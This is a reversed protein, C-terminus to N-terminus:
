RHQQDKKSLEAVRAIAMPDIDMLVVILKDIYDRARELENELHAMKGESERQKEQRDQMTLQLQAHQEELRQHAVEADEKDRLLQHHESELHEMQGLKEKYGHVQAEIEKRRLAESRKILEREEKWARAEERLRENEVELRRLAKLSARSSTTAARHEPTNRLAWSDLVPSAPANAVSASGATTSREFVPSGSVQVSSRGSVPSGFNLSRSRPRGEETPVQMGSQEDSGHGNITREARGQTGQPLEEASAFIDDESKSPSKLAFKSFDTPGSGSITSSHLYAAPVAHNSDPLFEFLVLVLRTGRTQNKPTSTRKISGSHAVFRRPRTINETSSSSVDRLSNTSTMLASFKHRLSSSRPRTGPSSLPDADMDPAKTRLFTTRAEAQDDFLLFWGAIKTTGAIDELGFSTGGLFENVGLKSGRDWISVQLRHSNDLKLTNSLYFVFMEDIKPSCTHKHQRSKQKTQKLDTGHASIYMKIYPDISGSSHCLNHVEKVFVHMTGVTRDGPPSADFTIELSVSAM